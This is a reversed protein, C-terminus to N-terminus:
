GVSRYPIGSLRLSEKLYPAGVRELMRVVAARTLPTSITPGLVIRETINQLTVGEPIVGELPKVPLRLKPEVGRSGISYHLMPALLNGTDRDRLYVLRWEEEEAFGSHKTFLAFLRFREFLMHAAIYLKEDPPKLDGLIEACKRVYKRLSALRENDTGYEVRALILPSRPVVALRSSDFVMAVGHGNRGYGRWMSLKGDEDSKAHESFCFVYVDLAASDFKAFFHEFAHILKQARDKSGCAVALEDSELVLERGRQMGFRVEQFDNMYLPNSLWIEGSKLIKELADFSTYHALLPKRSHFQDADKIDAYLPLFANAFDGDFQPMHSPESKVNDFDEPKEGSIKM